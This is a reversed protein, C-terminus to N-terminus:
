EKKLPVIRIKISGDLTLKNFTVECEIEGGVLKEAIKGLNVGHKRMDKFEKLLEGVKEVIEKGVVVEVKEKVGEEEM